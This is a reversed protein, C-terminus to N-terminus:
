LDLCIIEAQREEEDPWRVERGGPEPKEQEEYEWCEGAYQQDATEVRYM